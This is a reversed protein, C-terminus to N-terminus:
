VRYDGDSEEQITSLRVVPGPSRRERTIDTEDSPSGSPPWPDTHTAHTTACPLPSTSPGARSLAGVALNGRARWSRRAAAPACSPTDEAFTVDRVWHLAEIAWHGRVWDALRAPSAQAHALSTVAHVVV